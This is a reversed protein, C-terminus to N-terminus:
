SNPGLGTHFYLDQGAPHRFILIATRSPRLFRLAELAGEMGEDAGLDAGLGAVAGAGAVGIARTSVPRPHFRTIHRRRPLNTRLLNPKPQPMLAAEVVGTGVDVAIAAGVVVVM